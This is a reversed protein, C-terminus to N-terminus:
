LKEMWKTVAEANLSSLHYLINDEREYKGHEPFHTWYPSVKGRQLETPMRKDSDLCVTYKECTKRRATNQSM